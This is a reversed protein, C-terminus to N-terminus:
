WSGPELIGIGLLHRATCEGRAYHVGVAGGVSNLVPGPRFGATATLWNPPQAIDQTKPTRPEPDQTRNQLELHRAAANCFNSNSNAQSKARGLLLHGLSSGSIFGHVFLWRWLRLKLNASHSFTRLDWPIDLEFV